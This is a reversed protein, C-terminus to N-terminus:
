QLAGPYAESTGLGYATCGPVVCNTQLTEFSSLLPVHSDVTPHKYARSAGRTCV